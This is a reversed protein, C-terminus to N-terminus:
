LVVWVCFSPLRRRSTQKDHGSRQCIGVVVAVAVATVQERLEAFCCAVAGSASLHVGTHTLEVQFHAFAVDLLGGGQVAIRLWRRSWRGNGRATRGSSSLAGLGLNAVYEQLVVAVVAVAVVVVVVTSSSARSRSRRSQVPSASDRRRWSRGFGAHVVATRSTARTTAAAATTGVGFGRDSQDLAAAIAAKGIM